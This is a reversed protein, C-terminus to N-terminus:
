SSLVHLRNVKGAPARPVRLREDLHHETEDGGFGSSHALGALVELVGLADLRREVLAAHGHGLQHAVEELDGVGFAYVSLASVSALLIASADVALIGGGAQSLRLGVDPRHGVAVPDADLHQPKDAVDRTGLLM